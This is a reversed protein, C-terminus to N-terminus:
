VNVYLVHNTCAMCTCPFVYACYVFASIYSFYPLGGLSLGYFRVIIIALKNCACELM